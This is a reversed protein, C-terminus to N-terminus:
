RKARRRKKAPKPRFPEYLMKYRGTWTEYLYTIAPWAKIEEIIVVM